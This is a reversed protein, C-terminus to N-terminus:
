YFGLVKTKCLTCVKMCLYNPIKRFVECSVRTFNVIGKVFMVNVVIFDCSRCCDFKGLLPKQNHFLSIVSALNLRHQQRCQHM